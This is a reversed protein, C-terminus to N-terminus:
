VASNYGGGKPLPDVARKAPCLQPTGGRASAHYDLEGSPGRLRIRFGPVLVQMYSMGRMPCGLSSDRWTVREASILTLADASFGFQRVADARAAAVASDLDSGPQSVTPM